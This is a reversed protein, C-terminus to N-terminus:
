VRVGDTPGLSRDMFIGSELDLNRSVSNCNWHYFNPIRLSIGFELNRHGLFKLPLEPVGFAFDQKGWEGFNPMQFQSSQAWPIAM